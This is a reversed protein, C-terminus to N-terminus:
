RAGAPARVATVVSMQKWAQTAKGNTPSLARGITSLDEDRAVEFGHEALLARMAEPRFTSRLPEGLRASLVLM